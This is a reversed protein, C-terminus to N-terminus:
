LPAYFDLFLQFANSDGTFYCLPLLLKKLGEVVDIVVLGSLSALKQRSAVHIAIAGGM